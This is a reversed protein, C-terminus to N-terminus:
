LTNLRGRLGSVEIVDEEDGDVGGDDDDATLDIVEKQELRALIERVSPLSDDDSDSIERNESLNVKYGPSFFRDIVPAGRFRYGDMMAAQDVTSLNFRAACGLAIADSPAPPKLCQFDLTPSHATLRPFLM